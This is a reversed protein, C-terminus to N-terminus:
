RNMRVAGIGKPSVALQASNSRLVLVWPAVTGNRISQGIVWPTGFAERPSRYLASMVGGVVWYTAYKYSEPFRSRVVTDEGNVMFAVVNVGGVNVSVM